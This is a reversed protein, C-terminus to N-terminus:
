FLVTLGTKHSRGRFCLFLTVNSLYGNFVHKILHFVFFYYVTSVIGFLIYFSCFRYGGLVCIGSRKGERGLAHAWIFLPPTLSSLPAWVKEKILIFYV